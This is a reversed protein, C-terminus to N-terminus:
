RQLPTQVVGKERELEHEWIEEKQQWAYKPDHISTLCNTPIILRLNQVQPSTNLSEYCLAAFDYLPGLLTQREVEMDVQRSSGRMIDPAAV